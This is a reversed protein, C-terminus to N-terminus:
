KPTKHQIHSLTSTCLGSESPHYKLWDVDPTSQSFNPLCCSHIYNNEEDINFKVLAKHIGYSGNKFCWTVSVM